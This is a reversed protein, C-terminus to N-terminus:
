HFYHELREHRLNPRLRPLRISGQQACDTFVHHAHVCHSASTLGRDDSCAPAPVFHQKDEQLKSPACFWSLTQYIRSLIPPSITLVGPHLNHTVLVQIMHQLAEVRNFGHKSCNSLIKLTHVDLGKIDLVDFHHRDQPDGSIEDRASGHMLSMLRVLTQRFEEVEARKGLFRGDRSFTILCCVVDFWEARMQDLLGTGEWFRQLAQNLRFSLLIAIVATLANWMYSQVVDELGTVEQFASIQDDLVHCLVSIFAAPLANIFAGPIVSGRGSSILGWNDVYGVM